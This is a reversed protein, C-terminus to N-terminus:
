WFKPHHSFRKGLIIPQFQTIQFQTILTINGLFQIIQFQTILWFNHTTKPGLNNSHVQGFSIAQYRAPGKLATCWALWPSPGTRDMNRWATFAPLKQSRCFIPSGKNALTMPQEAPLLIFAATTGLQKGTSCAKGVSLSTEQFHIFM